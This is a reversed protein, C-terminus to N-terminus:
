NLTAPSPTAAASSAASAPVRPVLREPLAAAAARLRAPDFDLYHHIQPPLVGALWEASGRFAPLVRSQQWWPDRPFPTFGALMVVLTVLLGGRLLGFLMGLLRDTGSLGTGQVLQAMIFRLLAGLLLVGIFCAGYGLALRASPLSVAPDFWTAVTDGFAWALWFAAIWVALAMVEAVLGRWLGILVSLGLVALIAYDAFNM